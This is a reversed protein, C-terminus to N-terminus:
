CRSWYAALGFVIVKGFTPDTTAGIIVEHGGTLMQQVQIGDIAADADYAKANAIIEDYASRVADDGSVGVKVGGAETKHLIDPSVIKMVVKGGLDTALRVAEDATSALGEGPTPIGYAECVRRGEPATLSERGEALAKDLVDRVADKDYGVAM